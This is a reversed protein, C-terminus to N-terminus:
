KSNDFYHIIYLTNLHPKSNVKVTIDTQLYIVKLLLHWPTTILVRPLDRTIIMQQFYTM